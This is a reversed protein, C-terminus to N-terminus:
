IISKVVEDPIVKSTFDEDDPHASIDRLTLQFQLTLEGLNSNVEQLDRRTAYSITLGTKKDEQQQPYVFTKANENDEEGDNLRIENVVSHDAEMHIDAVIVKEERLQINLHNYLTYELNSKENGM